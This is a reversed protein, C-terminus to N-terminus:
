DSTSGGSQIPFAEPSGSKKRVKTSVIDASNSHNFCKVSVQHSSVRQQRIILTFIAHSRSSHTNMNTSATTRSLAGSRLCQMAEDVSGVNVTTIGSVNISGESDEHIKVNAKSM